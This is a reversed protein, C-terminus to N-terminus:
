TLGDDLRRGEHPYRDQEADCHNFPSRFVRFRKLSLYAFVTSTNPHKYTLCWIIVSRLPV